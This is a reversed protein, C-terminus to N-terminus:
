RGNTKPSAGESDRRPHRRRRNRSSRVRVPGGEPNTWMAGPDQELFGRNSPVSEEKTIRRGEEGRTPGQGEKYLYADGQTPTPFGGEERETVRAESDGKFDFEGM